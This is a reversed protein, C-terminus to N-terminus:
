IWVIVRSNQLCCSKEVAATASYIQWSSNRFYEAAQHDAWITLLQQLIDTVCYFKIYFITLTVFIRCKWNCGGFILFPPASFNKENDIKISHHTM